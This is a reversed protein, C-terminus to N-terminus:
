SNTVGQDVKFLQTRLFILDNVQACLSDTQHSWYLQTM